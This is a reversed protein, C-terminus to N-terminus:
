FTRLSGPLTQLDLDRIDIAIFEGDVHVPVGAGGEIRIRAARELRMFPSRVHSGTYTRPLLELIRALGIHGATFALDFLGDDAQAAPALLFAGGVRRGICVSAMFVEGQWSAGDWVFRMPYHKRDSLTRALAVLYVARGRPWRIRHSEYNVRGEFGLGVSNHFRLEGGVFRPDKWLGVDIRRSPGAAIRDVCATISRPWGHMWAFDNGSGRPIIGLVQRELDVAQLAEHLTGDGGCVVVADAADGAAAVIRRADGPGRTTEIRCPLDRARFAAAIEDADARNGRCAAPNIVVLIRM